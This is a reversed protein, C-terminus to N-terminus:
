QTTEMTEQPRALEPEEDWSRLMWHAIQGYDAAHAAQRALDNVLSDEPPIGIGDIMDGTLLDPLWRVLYPAGDEERAEALLVRAQRNLDDDDQLWRYVHRTINMIQPM